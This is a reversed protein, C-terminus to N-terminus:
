RSRQELNDLRHFIERHAREADRTIRGEATWLRHQEDQIADVTQEIRDVADRLSAGSDPKLEARTQRHEQRLQRVEASTRWGQWLAGLVAGIATLLAAVETLQFPGM